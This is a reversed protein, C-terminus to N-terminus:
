TKKNSYFLGAYFVNYNGIATFDLMHVTGEMMLEAKHIAIYTRLLCYCTAHFLDKITNIAFQFYFNVIYIKLLFRYM